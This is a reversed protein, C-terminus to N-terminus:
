VASSKTSVNGVVKLPGREPNDKGVVASTSRGRIGAFLSKWNSPKLSSVPETGKENRKGASVFEGDGGASSTREHHGHTVGHAVQSQSLIKLTDKVAYNQNVERFIPISRELNALGDEFEGQAVQVEGLARFIFAKEQRNIRSDNGHKETEAIKLAEILCSKSAELNSMRFHLGGISRLCAMEGRRHKVQRYKHLSEMLDQLAKTYDRYYAKLNGLLRLTFADGLVNHVQSFLAHAQALDSMAAARNGLALNLRGRVRLASAEGNTDKLECFLALARNVAKSATEISETQTIHLRKDSVDMGSREQVLLLTRRLWACM